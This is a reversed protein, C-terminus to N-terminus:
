LCCLSSDNTPTNNEHKQSKVCGM